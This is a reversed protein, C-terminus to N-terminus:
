DIHSLFSTVQALIYTFLPLFDDAALVDVEKGDEENEERGSEIREKEREMQHIDRHLSLILQASEVLHLSM